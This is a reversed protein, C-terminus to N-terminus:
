KAAETLTLELGVAQAVRVVTDLRASNNARELDLVRTPSTEAAAAVAARSLKRDTRADEIRKGVRELTQQVAERDVPTASASMDFETYSTSLDNHPLWKCETM